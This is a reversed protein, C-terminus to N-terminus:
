VDISVNFYYLMQMFDNLYYSNTIIFISFCDTETCIIDLIIQKDNNSMDTFYFTFALCYKRRRLIKYDVIRYNLRSLLKKWGAKQTQCTVYIIDGEVIQCKFMGHKLFPEVKFGKTGKYFWRFIQKIFRIKNKETFYQNCISSPFLIVLPKYLKRVIRYKRGGCIPYPKLMIKNNNKKTDIV